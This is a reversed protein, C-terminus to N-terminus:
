LRSRRDRHDENKAYYAEQYFVVKEFTESFTAETYVDKPM